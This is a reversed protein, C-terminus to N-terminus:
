QNKPPGDINRIIYSVHVVLNIPFLSRTIRSPNVKIPFLSRTTPEQNGYANQILLLPRRPTTKLPSGASKLFLSSFAESFMMNAVPSTPIRIQSLM